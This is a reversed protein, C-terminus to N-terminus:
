DVHHFGNPIAGLNGVHNDRFSPGPRIEGELASQIIADMLDEDTRDFLSPSTRNPIGFGIDSRSNRSIFNEQQRSSSVNNSNISIPIVRTNENHFPKVVSINDTAPFDSVLEEISASGRRNNVRRFRENDFGPIVRPGANISSASSSAANNSPVNPAPLSTIGADRPSILPAPAQSAPVIRQGVPKGTLTFKAEKQEEKPDLEKHLQDLEEETMSQAASKVDSVKEDSKKDSFGSTNMNATGSTSAPEDAADEPVKRNRFQLEDLVISEDTTADALPKAGLPGLSPLKSGQEVDNIARELSASTELKRADPNPVLDLAALGTPKPPLALPAPASNGTAVEPAAEIEVEPTVTSPEPDNLSLEPQDEKAVNETKDPLPPEPLKPEDPPKEDEKPPLHIEQTEPPAEPASLPEKEATIVPAKVPEDAEKPPPIAEEAPMSPKSKSGGM